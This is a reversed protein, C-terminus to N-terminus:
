ILMTCTPMGCYYPILVQCAGLIFSASVIPQNAVAIMWCQQYTKPTASSYDLIFTQNVVASSSNQRHNDPAAFSFGLIFPQKAVPSSSNLDHTGTLNDQTNQRVIGLLQTKVM